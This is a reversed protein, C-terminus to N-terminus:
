WIKLIVTLSTSLENVSNQQPIMLLLVDSGVRNKLCSTRMMAATFFRLTNSRKACIEHAAMAHPRRHGTKACSICKLRIVSHFAVLFSTFFIFFVV